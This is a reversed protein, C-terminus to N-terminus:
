PATDGLASGDHRERLHDALAEQTPFTEGCIHCTGLEGDGGQEEREGMAREGRGTEARPRRAPHGPDALDFGGCSM